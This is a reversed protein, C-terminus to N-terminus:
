IPGYNQIGGDDLLIGKCLNTSDITKPILYACTSLSDLRILKKIVFSDTDCANYGLLKVDYIGYNKYIHSVNM